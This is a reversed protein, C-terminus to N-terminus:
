ATLKLEDSSSHTTALVDPKKAFIATLKVSFLVIGTLLLGFCVWMAIRVSPSGLPVNWTRAALIGLGMTGLCLTSIQITRGRDMIRNLQELYPERKKVSTSRHTALVLPVLHSLIGMIANLIFGIFTMHTYAILHLRGYALAPPSSLHNAGVAIGLLVTLVLFFTGILLHDSAASGHHDSSLWTRFLNTILLAMGTFLIAGAAMEAPISSQLFGGILVAVGVPILTMAAQMLRPNLFPRNWVTPLIQHILGILALVIFGLSVLHIHALRLYGYSESLFGWAAIEGCLAGSLLGGLALLYSWPRMFSTKWAHHIRVGLTYIVSGYAAIVMLGATGVVTNQHQWFGVLMGIVGGNMALFTLPHAASERRDGERPSAILLLLGGLVIQVVGGVLVAHVHLTRVWPPVPTSRVLGVLMALGLISALALWAFGTVCFTLPSTHRTFM